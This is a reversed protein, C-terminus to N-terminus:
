GTAESTPGRGGSGLLWIVDVAFSYVLLALASGAVVSALRAPTIPGLCVLLVLGQVVCVTKRRFSEPLAGRLAPLAWGAAVFFYRLAGVLIVWAAVKGSQWVLVSLVLLLFADLELDFRAGFSSTTGTRRAIRGDVNDLVMAVGSWFIVWWYGLDVALAPHFVLGAVPLVLTARALTVRNAIGLGGAVAPRPARRYIWVCLGVWLGGVQVPYSASLGFLLWTAATLLALPLAAWALERVPGGPGGPGYGSSVPTVSAATASEHRSSKLTM